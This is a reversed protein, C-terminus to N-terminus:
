NPEVHRGGETLQNDDITVVEQINEERVSFIM